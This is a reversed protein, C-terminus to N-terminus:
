TYGVVEVVDGANLTTRVQGITTLGNVQMAFTQNAKITRINALTASRRFEIDRASRNQIEFAFVPNTFTVDYFQNLVALNINLIEYNDGGVPLVRLRRSSDIQLGNLLNDYDVLTSVPPPWTYEAGIPAESVWAILGFTVQPTGGNSFALRVYPAFLSICFSLVGRTAVYTAATSTFLVNTGDASFEAFFGNSAGDVNAVVAGVLYRGYWPPQSASAAAAERPEKYVRQFPTRYTANAALPTQTVAHIYSSM